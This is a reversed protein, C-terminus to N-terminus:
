FPPGDVWRSKKGQGMERRVSGEGMGVGKYGQLDTGATLSKKHDKRKSHGGKWRILGRKWVCEGPTRAFVSRWVRKHCQFQAKACM